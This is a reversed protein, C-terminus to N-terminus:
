DVMSEKLEFKRYKVFVPGRKENELISLGSFQGVKGRFSITGSPGIMTVPDSESGGNELIKRAGTLFPTRSRFSFRTAKEGVKGFEASVADRCVVEWM